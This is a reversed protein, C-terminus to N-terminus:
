AGVEYADQIRMARWDAYASLPTYGLGVRGLSFLACYWLSRYRFLRPKM